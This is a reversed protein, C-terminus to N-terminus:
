SRGWRTVSSQSVSNENCICPMNISLIQPMCRHRRRRPRRCEDLWDILFWGLFIFDMANFNCLWTIIKTKNQIYNQISLSFDFIFVFINSAFFNFAIVNDNKAILSSFCFLCIRRIMSLSLSFSLIFNIHKANHAGHFFIWEICITTWQYNFEFQGTGNRLSHTYAWQMRTFSTREHSQFSRVILLKTGPSAVYAVRVTTKSLIWNELDDACKM